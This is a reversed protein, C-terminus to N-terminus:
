AERKPASSIIFKKVRLEKTTQILTLRKLFCFSIKIVIKRIVFEM